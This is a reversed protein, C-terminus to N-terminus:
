EVASETRTCVGRPPMAQALLGRLWSGGLAHLECFFLARQKRRTLGAHATHKPSVIVDFVERAEDIPLALRTTGRIALGVAAAMAKVGSAASSQALLHNLIDAASGEVTLSWGGIGM